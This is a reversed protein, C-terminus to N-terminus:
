IGKNAVEWAVEFSWRNEQEASLGRDLHISLDHSSDM